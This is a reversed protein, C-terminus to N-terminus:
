TQLPGSTSRARVDQGAHMFRRRALCKQQGGAGTLRRAQIRAFHGCCAKAIDSAIICSRWRLKTAVQNVSLDTAAAHADYPVAVVRDQPTVQSQLHQQRVVAVLAPGHAAKVFLRLDAPLQLMRPQHRDIFQARVARALREEGHLQDFSLGEISQELSPGIRGRIQATEQANELLHTLGDAIGVAAADQVAIQFGGVDHDAGEAFHLYHVPTQGLDDLLGAPCGDM